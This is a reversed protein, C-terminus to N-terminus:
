SLSKVDRDGLDDKVVIELADGEANVGIYIQYDVVKYLNTNIFDTLVPLYNQLVYLM